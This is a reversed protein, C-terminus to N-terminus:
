RRQRWSEARTYEGARTFHGAILRDVAFWAGLRTNNQTAILWNAAENHLRSREDTPIGAYVAERISDRQFTYAQSADFSYIEDVVFFQKYVLSLLSAEVEAMEIETEPILAFLGTDWCLPGFISACQLVRRETPSLCDLQADILAPLDSPLPTKEARDMDVRWRDGTSIIGQEILLRIFSEIYLPNGDAEAVVLDLLRMPLPSLPALLDGAMLRGDVASLPAIELRDMPSFLEEKRSLWPLTTQPDTAAAVTALGLFLVPGSEGRSVLRDVLELSQRDARNIGELICVTPGEATIGRLLPEVVDLMEEITISTATRGDLLKEMISLTPALSDSGIDPRGSPRGSALQQLGQRLKHEILYPSNQPYISYRRLLLDRVLAYPFDPLAGQTGARLITLSGGLLQAQKEFENVLRSKGAGPAGIITLLFPARSDIASQLALQLRDMQETRGVLRAVRGAVHGPSYRSEIPREGTVLYAEGDELLPNSLGPAPSFTFRDNNQRKTAGSTLVRGAPCLKELRRAEVVAEGVATARGGRGRLVSPTRVFYVPGSHVGIRMSPGPWEGVWSEDLPDEAALRARENFLELEQQMSLAAHLARATDGQRSHTLGYIALLSDGAHQDIQGGWSQIVADLVGWMANIADRVREVDMRESLTTFGSLDAVLVTLQHRAQDGPEAQLQALKDRLVLLVTDVAQNLDRDDGVLGRQAELTAIAEVLSQRSVNAKGVCFIIYIAADAHSGTESSTAPIDPAPDHPSM